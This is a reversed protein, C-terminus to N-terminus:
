VKKTYKLAIWGAGSKLRGWKGGKSVEVITYINKYEMKEDISGCVKYKKGPGKRINLSNITTRITYPVAPTAAANGTGGAQTSTIGGTVNSAGPDYKDLGFRTIISCIKDVYKTDTAYGGKKILTIQAKYGTCETIGAYRLAAGDKAGLLYACRDAISDEVCPYTRFEALEYYVNGKGDQEATRIKVKSKGDWTSGPWTNGSLVCKMGCLNNYHSLETGYGYGAELITQAAAVSPLLGYKEAIPRCTELLAVAAQPETLGAFVSSQTGSAAPATYELQGDADYVRYGAPCADIANGLIEYAGRQTEPRDWSVRVRYWRIEGYALINSGEMSAAVDSRFKDMTLGFRDWVHTPDVHASALGLRNAEQHSYVQHLGNKLKKQPNFGYALCKMAVFVVATAYGRRIDEEFRAADLVTYSASNEKYKMHDSEAVEVTYSHNNGYGADAWAVNDDPLLVLVKGVMEADCIAHVIGGPSYQDMNNRIKEATNQACGITHIEISDMEAARKTGYRKFNKCHAEIINVAM